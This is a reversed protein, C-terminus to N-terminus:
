SNPPADAAGTHDSIMCNASVCYPTGGVSTASACYLWAFVVACYGHATGCPAASAAAMACACADDEVVEVCFPVCDPCLWDPAVDPFAVDPVVLDFGPTWPVVPLRAPM